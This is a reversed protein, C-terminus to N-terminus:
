RGGDKQRAARLEVIVPGAAGMVVASPIDDEEYRYHGLYDDQNADIWPGLWGLFTEIESEYNKLNFATNLRWCGSIDDFWFRVYARTRFYYSDCHFIQGVRDFNLPHGKPFEKRYAEGDVLKRLDALVSEPLEKKLDVALVLETYMGM